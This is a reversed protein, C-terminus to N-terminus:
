AREDGKTTTGSFKRGMLVLPDVTIPHAKGYISLEAALQWALQFGRIFSDILQTETIHDKADILRLLVKRNEKSLVESLASHCDAIEQRLPEPEISTYFYDYIALLLENM